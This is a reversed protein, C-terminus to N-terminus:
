ALVDARTASGGAARVGLARGDSEEGVYDPLLRQWVEAQAYLAARTLRNLHEFDQLFAGLWAPALQDALVRGHAMGMDGPTGALDIVPLAM